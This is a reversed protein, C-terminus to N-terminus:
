QETMSASDAEFSWRVRPLSASFTMCKARTSRPAPSGTPGSRHQIRQPRELRRRRAARRNRSSAPRPKERGARANSSNSWANWMKQRSGCSSSRTIAQQQRLRRGRGSSRAPTRAAQRRATPAVLAPCSARSAAARISSSAANVTESRSSSCRASKSVCSAPRAPVPSAASRWAAGASGRLACAAAKAGVARAREDIQAGRQARRKRPPASMMGNRAPRWRRWGGSTTSHSM